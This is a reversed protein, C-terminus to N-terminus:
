EVDNYESGIAITKKDVELLIMTVYRPIVMFQEETTDMEELTYARIEEVKVDTFYSSAGLREIYLSVETMTEFQIEVAVNDELFDYSTLYANDPLLNTLEAILLSTEFSLGEAYSVISELSSGTSEAGANNELQLLGARLQQESVRLADIQHQSSIYEYIMFLCLLILVLGTLFAVITATKRRKEIKPLLNVQYLM